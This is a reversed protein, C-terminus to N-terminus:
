GLGPPRDAGGGWGRGGSCRLSSGMVRKMPTGVMYAKRSLLYLSIGSCSCRATRAAAARRRSATDPLEAQGSGMMLAQCCSDPPPAPAASPDRPPSPCRWAAPRGADTLHPRRSLSLFCSTSALLRLGACRSAAALHLHLHLPRPPPRSAHPGAPRGACAPAYDGMCAATGGWVDAGEHVKEKMGGEHVEKQM